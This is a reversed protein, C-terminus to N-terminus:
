LGSRRRLGLTRGRAGLWRRRDARRVPLQRVRRTSGPANSQAVTLKAARLAGNWSGYLQQCMTLGPLEPDARADALTPPRGHTKAWAALRELAEEPAWVKRRTPLGAAELAVNWSGFVALVTSAGPWRPWADRWVASAHSWNQERPPACHEANWAQLAAVIEPETAAPGPRPFCERCYESYLAPGSCGRCTSGVLYRHVTRLHVGLQEAIAHVSEGAARLAVAAAVRERRPM